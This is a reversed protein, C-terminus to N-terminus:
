LLVAYVMVWLRSLCVIELIAYSNRGLITTHIRKVVGEM